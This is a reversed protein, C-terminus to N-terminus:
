EESPRAEECLYKSGAVYTEAVVQEGTESRVQVTQRAYYGGSVGECQDMQKMGAPNCLSARAQARPSAVGDSM